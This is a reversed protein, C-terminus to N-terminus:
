IGRNRFVFFSTIWKSQKFLNLSPWLPEWITVLMLLAHPLPDVQLQSLIANTEFTGEYLNSSQLDLPYLIHIWLQRGVDLFVQQVFGVDFHWLFKEHLLHWCKLLMPDDRSFSCSSSFRYILEMHIWGFYFLEVKQLTNMEQDFLSKLRFIFGKHCDYIIPEIAQDRCFM